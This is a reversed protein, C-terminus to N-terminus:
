EHGLFVSIDPSCGAFRTFNDELTGASVLLFWGPDVSSLEWMWPSSDSRRDM